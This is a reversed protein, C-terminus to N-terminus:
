LLGKARLTQEVVKAKPNNPNKQLWDLAEKDAASPELPATKKAEGAAKLGGGRIAEAKLLSDSAASKLADSKAKVQSGFEDLDRGVM